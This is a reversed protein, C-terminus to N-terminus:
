KDYTETLTYRAAMVGVVAWRTAPVRAPVTRRAAHAPRWGGGTVREGPAGTGVSDVAGDGASGGTAGTRPGSASRTAYGGGSVTSWTRSELKKKPVAPLPSALTVM